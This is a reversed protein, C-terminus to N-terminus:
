VNITDCIKEYCFDKTDVIADYQKVWHEFETKPIDMGGQIGFFKHLLAFAKPISHQAENAYIHPLREHAIYELFWENILQKSTAPTKTPLIEENFNLYLLLEYFDLLHEDTLLELSYSCDYDVILLSGKELFFEWAPKLSAPIADVFYQYTKEVTDNPQLTCAVMLELYRRSCQCILPILSM